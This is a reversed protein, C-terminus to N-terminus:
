ATEVPGGFGASPIVGHSQTESLQSQTNLLNCQEPKIVQIPLLSRKTKTLGLLTAVPQQWETWAYCFGNRAVELM